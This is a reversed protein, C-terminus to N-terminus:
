GAANKMKLVRSIRKRKQRPLTSFWEDLMCVGEENRTTALLKLRDWGVIDILEKGVVYVRGYFAESIDDPILTGSVAFMRAMSCKKSNHVLFIRNAEAHANEGIQDLYILSFLVAFMEDIWHSMSKGEGCARHFAEHGGSYM